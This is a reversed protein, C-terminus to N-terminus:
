YDKWLLKKGFTNKVGFGKERERAPINSNKASKEKKKKKCSAQGGCKVKM